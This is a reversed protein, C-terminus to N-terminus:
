LYQLFYEKKIMRGHRLRNRCSRKGWVVEPVSGQHRAGKSMWEVRELAHAGVTPALGLAGTAGLVRLAM